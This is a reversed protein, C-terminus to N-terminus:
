AIAGGYIEQDVQLTSYAKPGRKHSARQRALQDAWPCVAGFLIDDNLAAFKPAFKSMADRGATVQDM